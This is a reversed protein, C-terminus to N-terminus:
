DDCRIWAVYIGDSASFAAAIIGDPRRALAVHRGTGDPGAITLTEGAEGDRVIRVHVERPADRAEGTPADAGFVVANEGAVASVNLLGYGTGPVIASPGSVDGFLPMLGVATTAVNGIATYGAYAHGEGDIAVAVEPPVSVTGVPRAVASPRPTGDPGLEAKVIPSVGARPDVFYITKTDGGAAFVPAAAGMGTMTLDHTGLLTGSRDVRALRVRMPTGTGDTWAVVRTRGVVGLAVAFRPDAGSGAEITRLRASPETPDVAGLRVHSRGDVFAVVLENGDIAIAPPANRPAASSMPPDIRLSRVPRPPGEPSAAVLHLGDEGADSRAHLALYFREDNAAIAPIGPAPWVRAPAETLAICQGDPVAAELTEPSAVVGDGTTGALESPDPVSDLDALDDEEPEAATPEVTEPENTQNAENAGDDDGCAALLLAAAIAIRAIV